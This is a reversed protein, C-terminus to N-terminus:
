KNLLKQKMQQYKKYGEGKPERKDDFFTAMKGPPLAGWMSTEILERSNRIGMIVSAKVYEDGIIIYEAGGIISQMVARAEDLSVQLPEQGVIEINM